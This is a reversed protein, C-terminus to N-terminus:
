KSPGVIDLLQDCVYDQQEQTLNPFMPLSLLREAVRETVPLSGKSMGMHAYAKQLHLPLPYHLGTGVGREQLKRQVEDRSDVLIVYLHFVHTNYPAVSPLQIAQNTSLRKHYYAACKQRAANWQSLRKLKARLIIAQLADMRANYGEVDHYYKQSQGHDRLMKVKRIIGSDNSVVAGAEGCAGLNKGPYFSFAGAHGMTGAPRGKYTAGHAQCADEVVLLNHKGALELIPDMDACQGYLHVPIVARTRSTLKERIHDATITYTHPDIDVFVPKAGTQSIAESTAIFTHAPCIVEDGSGIGLALLALRLADTGSNVSACAAAQCFQAFEEEFASVQPGGIFAASHFAKEFEDRIEPWLERHPTQLDLFPVQM